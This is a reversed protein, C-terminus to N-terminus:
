RLRGAANVCGPFMLKPQDRYTCGEIQPGTSSHSRSSRTGSFQRVGDGCLNLKFYVALMSESEPEPRRERCDNGDVDEQCKFAAAKGERGRGREGERVRECEM